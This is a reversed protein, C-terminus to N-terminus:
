PAAQLQLGGWYPRISPSTGTKQTIDGILTQGIRPLVGYTDTLRIVMGADPTM